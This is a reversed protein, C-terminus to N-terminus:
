KGAHSLQRAAAAYREGFSQGSTFELQEAKEVRMAPFDERAIAQEMFHPALAIVPGSASEVLHNDLKAFFEAIRALFRAMEDGDM